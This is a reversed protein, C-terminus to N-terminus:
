CGTECSRRRRLVLLLIGGLLLGARGPEPVVVIVGHSLFADMNYYLGTTASNLDPLDLDFSANETDGGTRLAGVSGYTFNTITLSSWDLLDYAHGYSPLYGDAFLVQVSGTESLNLAGQVELRDNGGATRNAINSLYAVNIGSGGQLTLSDSAFGNGALEFVSGSSAATLTLAGTKLVGIGHNALLGDGGPSVRGNVTVAGSLTGNGGLTAGAAVTVIGTGTASGGTNAVLLAGASVTTGGSYSNSGSLILAGPGTKNLGVTGTLTSQVEAAGTTVEIAPAAGALNVTGSVLQYGSTQFSLDNVTVAGSVTVTGATGAFVADDYPSNVWYTPLGGGATGSQEGRWARNTQAAEWVGSGGTASSANGDADWHAVPVQMVRVYDVEFTMGATTVPDLRLRMNTGSIWSSEKSLDVTYVHYAGDHNGLDVRQGGVFSGNNAWFLEAKSGSAKMRIEVVGFSAGNFSMGQSLIADGSGTGSIVGGSVTLGTLNSGVWASGSAGNVDGDADWEGLGITQTRDAVFYDLEFTYPTGAVVSSVPDIRYGSGAPVPNAPDGRAELFNAGSANGNFSQGGVAPNEWIQPGSTSRYRLRAWNYTAFDFTGGPSNMIIMPDTAAGTYSFTSVGGANTEAPAVGGGYLVPGSGTGNLDRVILTNSIGLDTFVPPAANLCCGCVLWLCLLWPCRGSLLLPIRSLPPM